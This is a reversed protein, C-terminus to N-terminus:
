HSFLPYLNAPSTLSLFFSLSFLSSSFSSLTFLISSSFFLSFPLFFFLDFFPIIDLSHVFLSLFSLFDCFSSISCFYLFPFNSLHFFSIYFSTIQFSFFSFDYISPLCNLSLFSFYKYFFCLSTIYFFVLSFFCLFIFTFHKFLKMSQMLNYATKKGFVEFQKM